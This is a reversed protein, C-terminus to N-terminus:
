KTETIRRTHVNKLEKRAQNLLYKNTAILASQLTPFDGDLLFSYGNDISINVNWNQMPSEFLKLNIQRM